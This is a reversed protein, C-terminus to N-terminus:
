VWRGVYPSILSLVAPPLSDSDDSYGVSIDGVRETKVSPNRMLIQVYLLCALELPEPLTRPNDTTAEAPFVYGGEYTVIINHEGQPWGQARYLRGEDLIEYDDVNVESINHIPYNRLNLYKSNTFGSIRETYEQKRFSRKCRSEITISAAMIQLILEDDMTTDSESISMMKKLRGLTALM